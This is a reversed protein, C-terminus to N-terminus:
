KRNVMSELLSDLMQELKKINQRDKMITLSQRLGSPKSNVLIRDKDFVLTLQEGWSFATAKTFAVIRNLEKDVEIKRLKFKQNLREAINDMGGIVAPSISIFTVNDNLRRLVFFIFFVGFSIFLVSLALIPLGSRFKIYNYIMSVGIAVFAVPFVLFFYDTYEDLTRPSRGTAIIHVIKEKETM